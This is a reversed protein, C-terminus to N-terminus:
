PTLPLPGAQAITRAMLIPDCRLKRGKMVHEELMAENYTYLKLKQHGLLGAWVMMYIPAEPNVALEREMKASLWGLQEEQWNLPRTTPRTERIWEETYAWQRRVMWTVFDAAQLEPMNSSGEVGKPPLITVAPWGRWATFTDSDYLAKAEDLKTGGKDARDMILQFAPLYPHSNLAWTGLTLVTHYLSFSYPRALIKHRALVIKFDPVYITHARCVLSSQVICQLADYMLTRLEGLDRYKAFADKGSRVEKMHLYPIEHKSLMAGWLRNFAAWHRIEGILAGMAFATVNPDETDGSEDGYARLIAM